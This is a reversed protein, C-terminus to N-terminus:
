IPEKSLFARNVSAKFTVFSQNILININNKLEM